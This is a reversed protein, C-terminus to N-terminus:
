KHLLNTFRAVVNNIFNCTNFHFNYIVFKLIEEQRKICALDNPDLFDQCKELRLNNKDLLRKRLEPDIILNNLSSNDSLMQNVKNSYEM